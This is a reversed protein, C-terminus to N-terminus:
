IKKIIILGGSQGYYLIFKNKYLDCDEPENNSLKSIDITRQIKRKKLNVVIIARERGSKKDNEHLGVPLYLKNKNIIGGQLINHFNVDFSKIIDSDKLSIVKGDSLKPLNYKNIRHRRNGTSENIEVIGVSYLSKNKKDVIWDHVIKNDGSTQLEITQVLTSKSNSISEVFCRHPKTCESVYLLPLHNGSFSEVGFSACNAHNTKSASALVFSDVIIKRKLDYIRCLGTNNLIYAKNGYIAMGQAPQNQYFGAVAYMKQGSLQHSIIFFFIFLCIKANGMSKMVINNGMM